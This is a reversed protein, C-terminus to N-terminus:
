NDQPQGPTEGVPSGPNCMSHEAQGGPSFILEPDITLTAAGDKYTTSFFDGGSQRFVYARGGITADARRGDESWTVVVDTEALPGTYCGYRWAGQPPARDCGASAALAALGLIWLCARGSQGM